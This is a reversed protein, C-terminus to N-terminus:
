SGFSTKKSFFNLAASLSMERHGKYIMNRTTSQWKRILFTSFNNLQWYHWYNVHLFESGEVLKLGQNRNLFRLQLRYIGFPDTVRQETRKLIQCKESLLTLACKPHWSSDLHLIPWLVYKSQYILLTSIMHEWVTGYLEELSFKVM